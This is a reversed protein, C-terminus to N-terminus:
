NVASSEAMDHATESQRPFMSEWAAILEQTRELSGGHDPHLEHLAARYAARLASYPLLVAFRCIPDTAVSFFSIDAGRAKRQRRAKRKAATSAEPPLLGVRVRHDTIWERVRNPRFGLQKIKAEFAGKRPSLRRAASHSRESLLCQYELFLRGLQREDRDHRDRVAAIEACIRKEADPTHKAQADIQALEAAGDVTLFDPNLNGKM